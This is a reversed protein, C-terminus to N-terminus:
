SNSADWGDTERDTQQWVFVSLRPFKLYQPTLRRVRSVLLFNSTLRDFTLTVPFLFTFITKQAYGEWFHIPKCWVLNLSMERAFHSSKQINTQRDAPIDTVHREKVWPVDYFPWLSRVSPFPPTIKHDFTVITLIVSFSFSTFSQRSYRRSFHISKCWVLVFVIM